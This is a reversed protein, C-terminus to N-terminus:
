SGGKASCGINVHSAGEQDPAMIGRAHCNKGRWWCVEAIGFLGKEGGTTLCNETDEDMRSQRHPCSKPFM